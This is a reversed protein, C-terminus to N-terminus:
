AGVEVEEVRKIKGKFNWRYRAGKWRVTLPLLVAPALLFSYLFYYVEFLPFVALLDTRRLRRTSQWLLLFDAGALILFCSVALSLAAFAAVLCALHGLFAILMFAKALPGVEKGGAAWRQRQEYFERWNRTPASTIATQPDLPFIVRWPTQAHIARMLAFDEIISFGLAEYGGTAEYAARRFAFNNGLISLPQGLGAAGAGVSLLYIWDLTQIKAVLSNEKHRHTLLTFGGVLGVHPAFYSVMQPIWSPPVECDADTMLMMEGRARAMGQCLASAKGSLNALRHTVPIVRVQSYARSFSEAIQRTRDTSRDDIVLIEYKDAPYRSQLLAALCRGLHKEENRAAIVVSVFPQETMRPLVKQCRIGFLLVISSLLYLLAIGGIVLILMNM